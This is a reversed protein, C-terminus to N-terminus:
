FKLARAPGCKRSSWRSAAVEVVSWRSEAARPLVVLLGSWPGGRPPAELHVRASCWAACHERAGM